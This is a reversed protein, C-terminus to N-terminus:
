QNAKKVESGIVTILDSVLKDFNKLSCVIYQSYYRNLTDLDSDILEQFIREPSEYIGMSPDKFKEQIEELYNLNTNEQDIDNFDNFVERHHEKFDPGTESLLIIYPVEKGFDDIKESNKVKDIGFDDDLLYLDANTVLIPIIFSSTIDEESYHLNFLINQKLLHPLGYKLQNIGQIIDKDFVEGTNPNIEIGKHGYDCASELEYLKNNDINVKSFAQLDRITHGLTFDSFEHNIEPLFVLKNNPDGGKCEIFLEITGNVGDEITHKTSLIDVSSEKLYGNDKLQYSYDYKTACRLKTLIKLVEHELPLSSSLLNDKWKKNSM